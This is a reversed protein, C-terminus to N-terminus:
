TKDVTLSKTLARVDRRLGKLEKPLGIFNQCYFLTNLRKLEDRIEQLLITQIKDYSISGDDNRWINWDGGYSETAPRKIAM